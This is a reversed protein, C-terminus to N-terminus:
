RSFGKGAALRGDDWGRHRDQKEEDNREGCAHQDSQGEGTAGAFPTVVAAASAGGVGHLCGDLRARQAGPPSGPGVRGHCGPERERGGDRHHDSAAQRDAQECIQDASVCGQGRDVRASGLPAVVVRRNERRAQDGPDRVEAVPRDRGQDRDRDEDVLPAAARIEVEHEEHDEDVRAVLEDRGPDLIQDIARARGEIRDGLARGTTGSRARTWPPTTRHRERGRARM